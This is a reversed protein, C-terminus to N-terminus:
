FALEEVEELAAGESGEFVKAGGGGQPLTDDTAETDYIYTLWARRIPETRYGRRRDGGHRMAEDEPRIRFHRLLAGLKHGTLGDRSTESWPAEPLANLHRLLTATAVFSPWGLSALIRGADALLLLHEAEDGGEGALAQAARAVKALWEGGAAEAVALLPGWKDRLRADFGPVCPVKGLQDGHDLAWRAAQRHLRALAEPRDLPDLKALPARSREMTVLISRSEVTKPLSGICGLAKPGFCDFARPESEDGVCRLVYAGRQFGENFLLRLEENRELRGDQEDCLLTPRHEDVVRFLTATTMSGTFLPLRALHHCARLATTKGCEPAPSSFVLYPAYGFREFFWTYFSWTAVAIYAGAPMALYRRLEHECEELWAAADVPDPWPDTARLVDALDRGALSPASDGAKATSFARHERRWLALVDGRTIGHRTALDKAAQRVELESLSALHLRLDAESHSMGDLRANGTV